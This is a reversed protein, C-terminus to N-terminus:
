WNAQYLVARWEDAPNWGEPPKVRQIKLGDITITEEEEFIPQDAPSAELWELAAKFTALDAAKQGEYSGYENKEGKKFSQGFFFGTTEPLEDKEIAAIIQRINNPTLEIPECKDEGGAFTQVIYGHLNPHKRWYGLDLTKESLRFGDEKMVNEPDIWNPPYNKKGTLYMDLGM